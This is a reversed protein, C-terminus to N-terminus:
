GQEVSYTIGDGAINANIWLLELNTIQFTISDAAGLRDFYSTADQAQVQSTGLYIFGTNGPKALIIAKFGDPIVIDPLQVPTGAVTVNVQGM